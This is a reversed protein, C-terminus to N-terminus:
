DMNHLPATPLHKAVITMHLILVDTSLLNYHWHLSEITGRIGEACEVYGLAATGASAAEGLGEAESNGNITPKAPTRFM